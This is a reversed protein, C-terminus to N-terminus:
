IGPTRLHNTIFLNILQILVKVRAADPLRNKLQEKLPYEMKASVPAPGPFYQAFSHTSVFVSTTLLTLIRCLYHLSKVKFIRKYLSTPVRM